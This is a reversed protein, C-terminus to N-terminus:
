GRCSGRGGSPGRRYKGFESNLLRDATIVPGEVCVRIGEHDLCCSGCVGVACKFHRNISAQIKGSYEKSRSLIDWMMPEPGCMYIQSYEGINLEKLGASAFGHLGLSGDDTTIVLDGLKKLRQKFLVDASSRFGILSTVDIGQAKAAEGLFALPAIGVGGGILLINDGRLTFSNGLPGRLGLSRGPELDALAKTAQGVEHVTIERLGSFGMPIEDLGRIWAMLYQGPKPDMSLDFILTKVKLTEQSVKLITADVSKAWTSPSESKPSM